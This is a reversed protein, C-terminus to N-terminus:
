WTVTDCAVHIECVPREVLRARAEVNQQLRALVAVDVLVHPGSFERVEACYCRETVQVVQDITLVVAHRATRSCRRPM